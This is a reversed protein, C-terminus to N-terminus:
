GRLEKDLRRMGMAGNLAKLAAEREMYERHRAWLGSSKNATYQDVVKKASGRAAQYLKEDHVSWRSEHMEAARFEQLERAAKAMRLFQTDPDDIHAQYSRVVTYWTALASLASAVLVIILLQLGSFVVAGTASQGTKYPSIPLSCPSGPQPARLHACVCSRWIDHPDGSAMCRGWARLMKAEPYM